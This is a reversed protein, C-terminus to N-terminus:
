HIAYSPIGQMSARSKRVAYLIALYNILDPLDNVDVGSGEFHLLDEVETEAAPSFPGEFERCIRSVKDLLRVMVGVEAQCVGMGECSLLNKLADDPPAYQVNRQTMKARAFRMIEDYSSLLDKQTIKM